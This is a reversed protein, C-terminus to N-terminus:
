LLWAALMGTIAFRVLWGLAHSLAVLPHLRTWIAMQILVVAPGALWVLLAMLLSGPVSLADAGVCLLAVAVCSLVAVVQSILITGAEGGPRGRWLEPTALYRGHFLVGMFLWDTFSALISAGGVTVVFNIWNM